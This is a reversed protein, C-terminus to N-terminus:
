IIRRLAEEAVQLDNLRKTHIKKKAMDYVTRAIDKVGCSYIYGEESLHEIFREHRLSGKKLHNRNQPLFVITNKGSSAAESVMSISDGSVIVIDALGLIGGVAEPVNNQNALILLPCRSDRKLRKELLHEIGSPTRRSTTMLIEANLEKTAELLQQILIKIQQESLFINKSIGGILLGIKLRMRNKLHSYRQTLAEAQKTLYQENIPNLSGHTVATKGSAKEISDPSEPNQKNSAPEIVDHRPLIVLDFNKYGLLGPKQIVVAKAKQEKALIHNIGAAKSGCSIIFDTKFSNLQQYSEDSLFWKLIGTKWPFFRHSILYSLAFFRYKWENRFHVSITEIKAEIGKELFVKQALDALAEGQRLHGMKGDSLVVIHAQNSYKWIKYFWIYQAPYRRIYDEMLETVQSLNAIEDRKLDGTNIMTLPKHVIWNHYPGKKRIIVGFCIPVDWKLAIRIAGVSMSAQKGFFPVLVGDRGGQDVVMGVIDNNKLSRILDRTGMGRSLVAAGGCTRYSNLLANLKLFRNQPKVMMKYPYGMVACTVSGLEWSGFHMALLICGKGNKLAEEIHEKGQIELFEQFKSQNLLPLRLFEILSQGLHEFSEKTIKKLEEPSKERAFATKLNM